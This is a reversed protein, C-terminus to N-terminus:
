TDFKTAGKLTQYTLVSALTNTSHFPSCISSDPFCEFILRAKNFQLQLSHTTKITYLFVQEQRFNTVLLNKYIAGSKKTSWPMDWFGTDEKGWCLRLLNILLLFLQTFILLWIFIFLSLLVWPFFSFLHVSNHGNYLM